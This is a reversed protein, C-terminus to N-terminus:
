NTPSVACFDFPSSPTQSRQYLYLKPLHQYTTDPVPIDSLLFVFPVREKMPYVEVTM